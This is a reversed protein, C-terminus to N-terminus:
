SRSRSRSRRRRHRREEDRSRSRSRRRRRHREGDRDRSRSRREGHRGPSRRERRAHPEGAPALDVAPRPAHAPAQAPAPALTLAPAASRLAADPAHADLRSLEESLEAIGPLGCVLGARAAWSLWPAWHAADRMLTDWDCLVILGRKARTLMVNLRQPDAVFGVGGATSCRTASFLIVEKERGQFGDVSSVDTVGSWGVARRLVRVQAAYPAVLGIDAPRLEGGALLGRLLSSVADAEAANSVSTGESREAGRVRVVALPVGPLPWPFGAPPRRLAAPTGSRLRGGYYAQSPWAALVPHMRYQTDLLLSPVGCRELRTFLSVGLGSAEAARSVVTPPLQAPDGVLVVSRAGCTALPVMASPETAQAAEDLLLASFRLRSLTESGAGSCTSVVVDTRGLLARQLKVQADRAMPPPGGARGGGGSLPVAGSAHELVYPLLDPRVADPRGIRVVSRVGIDLLGALLNDCATNSDSCCLVPRVGAALWLRVLQLATATKGSGPPGQVLTLRRRLGATVAAQQSGNLRPLLSSVDGDLLLPHPPLV